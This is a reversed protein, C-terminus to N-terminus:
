RTFQVFMIIDNFEKLKRREVLILELIRSLLTYNLLNLWFCQKIIDLNKM